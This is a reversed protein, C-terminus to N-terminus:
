VSFDEDASADTENILSALEGYLDDDDSRELLGAIPALGVRHEGFANLAVQHLRTPPRVREPSNLVVRAADAEAYTRVLNNVGQARLAQGEDFELLRLENLQYVLAALSVQFHIMLAIVSSPSVPAADQRFRLLAQIGREPMLFHAAFANARWEVVNDAFMAAEDEGIVERTDGFLHHALEHALTFRVHGAPFDSSALILNVGDAHVCLGDAETGLPSLAVDVGFHAEILDPLNGLADSGLDLGARAAEALERGQRKATAKSSVARAGTVRGEALLAEAAATPLGAALGVVETLTDDIEVLQRARRYAGRLADNPADAALRAAFALKTREPMGLLARTSIGLAAAALAVESIDLRRRGSEIKSVKTKDLGGLAAGLQEQTMGARRRADAIRRGVEDLVADGTVAVLTSVLQSLRLALSRRGSVEPSRNALSFLGGAPRRLFVDAGSEVVM